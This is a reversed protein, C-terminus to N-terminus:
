LDGGTEVSSSTETKYIPGGYYYVSGVGYDAGTDIKQFALDAGDPIVEGAEEATVTVAWVNKYATASITATEELIYISGETGNLTISCDYIGTTASRKTVTVSGAVAEGSLRVSVTPTSDADILTLGDSPDYLYMSWELTSGEVLVSPRNM